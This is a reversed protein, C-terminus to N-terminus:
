EDKEGLIENKLPVAGKFLSPEKESLKNLCRKLRDDAGSLISLKSSARLMADSFSRVFSATDDAKVLEKLKKTIAPCKTIWECCPDAKTTCEDIATQFHGLLTDLNHYDLHPFRTDVWGPAGM